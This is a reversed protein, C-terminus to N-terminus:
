EERIGHEAEYAAVRRYFTNRKLGLRKMAAVATTEGAKWSKYEREFQKKNINVPTRGRYKGEAKAIEIGERQRQLIQERELEGLAAFVTLMFKGQPTTTDIREKLSIFEVSKKTLEDVIKLLDRTSRSIRNFSETIVTDGERVFNIMENFAKRDLKVGSQKDVFIKEAGNSELATIQRAENQEETSVRAYGIIM